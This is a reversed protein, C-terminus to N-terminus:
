YMSINPKKGNWVKYSTTDSLSSSPTANLIHVLYLLAQSWFSQPLNAQNLTAVIGEALTRNLGEAVGNQSPTARVTRERAIGKEKLFAELDKSM